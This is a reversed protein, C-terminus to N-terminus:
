LERGAAVRLEELHAELIGVADLIMVVRGDGLLTAGGIGLPKGFSEDLPKVVIRLTELPRDVLLAKQRGGGALISAYRRPGAKPRASGLFAGADLAPIVRDRVSIVGHSAVRHLDGEELRVTEELFSVPLAYTEGDVSVLLADTLALTLPFALRFETGRGPVSRVRVSGGLREVSAKVVDLGVGRGSLSSVGQRTSFAPLFILALLASDDLDATPIGMEAGRRRVRELDIGAGDDLIAVEALGSAQRAAITLTGRRSKGRAERDSPKELGHDLANRVLHLLPEGLEDVVSKDFTTEEGQTVFDVEKGLDLALDRVLRRFRSFVTGVPVLRTAFVERELLGFTRLLLELSESAADADESPSRAALRRVREAVGALLIHLEGSLELLRELSAHSVRLSRSRAGLVATGANDEAPAGAAGARSDREPRAPQAPGSESALRSLDELAESWEAPATEPVEGSRFTASLKGIAALLLAVVEEDPAAHGEGSAALADEMVHAASAVADFGMMSSNGKLTHFLRKLGVLNLESLTTEASEVGLLTEEARELLERSSSLYDELIERFEPTTM